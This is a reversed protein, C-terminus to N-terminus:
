YDMFLGSIDRITWAFLVYKKFHECKLTCRDGWTMGSWISRVWVLLSKRDRSKFVVTEESGNGGWAAWWRAPTQWCEGRRAEPDPQLSGSAKWVVPSPGRRPSLNHCCRRGASCTLGCLSFNCSVFGTGWVDCCVVAQHLGTSWDWCTERGFMHINKRAHTCYYIIERQWYDRQSQKHSSKEGCPESFCTDHRMSSPLACVWRQLRDDSILPNIIIAGHWM